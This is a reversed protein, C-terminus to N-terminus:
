GGGRLAKEVDEFMSTYRAPPLKRKIISGYRATGIRPDLLAFVGTDTESRILRGFAQRLKIIARPLADDPFPRIDHELLWTERARNYASAPSPFPIRTVIVCQLADGVVDIGQWFTGTGLLITGADSRLQNLLFTPDAEGQALVQRSGLL